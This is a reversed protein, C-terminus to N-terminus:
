YYYYYFYKYLVRDILIVRMHKVYICEYSILIHNLVNFIFINIIHFIFINFYINIINFCHWYCINYHITWTTRGYIIYLLFILNFTCKYYYFLLLHM